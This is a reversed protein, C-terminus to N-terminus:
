LFLVNLDSDSMKDEYSHQLKLFFSLIMALITVNVFM